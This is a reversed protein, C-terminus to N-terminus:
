LEKLSLIYGTFQQERKKGYIMGVKNTIKMGVFPLCFIQKIIAIIFGKDDYQLITPTKGRKCYTHELKIGAKNIDIM